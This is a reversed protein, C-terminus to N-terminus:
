YKCQEPNGSASDGRKEIISHRHEREQAPAKYKKCLKKYKKIPADKDQGMEFGRACAIQHHLRFFDALQFIKFKSLLKGPLISPRGLPVSVFLAEPVVFSESM